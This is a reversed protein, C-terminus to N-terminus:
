REVHPVTAFITQDGVNSNPSVERYTSALLLADSSASEKSVEKLKVLFGELTAKKKLLSDNMHDSQLIEDILSSIKKRREQLADAIQKRAEPHDYIERFVNPSYMTFRWADYYSTSLNMLQSILDFRYNGFEQEDKKDSYDKLSKNVIAWQDNLRKEYVDGIDSESYAPLDTKTGATAARSVSLSMVMFAILGFIKKMRINYLIPKVNQVTIIRM